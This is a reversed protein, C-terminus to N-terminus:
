DGRTHKQDHQLPPLPINDRQLSLPQCFVYGADRTLQIPFFLPDPWLFRVLPVFHKHVTGSVWSPIWWPCAVHLGRSFRWERLLQEQLEQYIHCRYHMQHDFAYQGSVEARIWSFSQRSWEMEKRTSSVTYFPLNSGTCFAEACRPSPHEFTQLNM